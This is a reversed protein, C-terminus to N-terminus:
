SQRWWTFASRWTFNSDTFLDVGNRGLQFPVVYFGVWDGVVPHHKNSWATVLRSKKIKDWIKFNKLISSIFQTWFLHFAKKHICKWAHELVDDILFFIITVKDLDISKIQIFNFTNRQTNHYICMKTSEFRRNESIVWIVAFTTIGAMIFEHPMFYSYILSIHM